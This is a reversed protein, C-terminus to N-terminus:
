RQILIAGTLLLLTGIVRSASLSIQTVGFTGTADLVSSMLVQGAIILSFVSAVGIKPIAVLSSVLYYAAFVGGLWAWIPVANFAPLSGRATTGSAWVLILSLLSVTLSVITALVPSGTSLQLRANWASQIALGAGGLMVLILLFFHNIMAKLIIANRSHISMSFAVGVLFALRKAQQKVPSEALFSYGLWAVLAITHHEISFILGSATVGVIASLIIDAAAKARIYHRSSLVKSLFYNCALLSKPLM